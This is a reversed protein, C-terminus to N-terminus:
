EIAGAEAAPPAGPALDFPPLLPLKGEPGPGDPPAFQPAPGGQPAGQPAGAPGGQPRMMHRPGMGNPRAGDQRLQHREARAAQLGKWQDPTLKARIALLFRANAKELEARAQAIKDIQALILQESPQDASMLPEMALEAKEVSAHMDILNGRHELLISDMGKRQDDTLNLKDVMTQDNWWRGAPGSGLARELPPRHAGFGQGPAPAPMQASATFAFVLTAAFIVAFVTRFGRM